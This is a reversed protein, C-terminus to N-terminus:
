GVADCAAPFLDADRRRGAGGAGHRADLRRRGAAMRCARRARRAPHAPGQRLVLAPDASLAPLVERELDRACASPWRRAADAGGARPVPQALRRVHVLVPLELPPLREEHWAPVDVETTLLFWYFGYGPLTLLYPLEGIPPFATRGMMEVPVRGRFGRCTWSWRSPAHAGPQGRVPHSTRAMSACTPSSRATAPVCSSWAHRARLRPAGQAGRDHAEDLQAAFLPRASQAEVNVAQYGYVPDMVPPLYLRQPDARSFGANRDPSWQMPTRVGNRDGLFINDGMGIEDGYYIIPSGPMSLLLSNMLKIREPDNDMLPALRRRIGVNLRMRPDSAYHQYMYDRERDTVM